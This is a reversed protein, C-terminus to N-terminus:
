RLIAISRPNTDILVATQHHITYSHWLSGTVRVQQGQPAVSFGRVANQENGNDWLELRRVSRESPDFPEGPKASAEDGITCIPTSLVLEYHTGVRQITGTLTVSQDYHLCSTAPVAATAKHSRVYDTGIGIAAVAAMGAVSAILFKRFM